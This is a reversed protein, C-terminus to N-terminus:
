VRGDHGLDTARGEVAVVLHFGGTGLGLVAATTNLVVADDVRIPGTLQPYAIAAAREGDVQVELEVAGPRELVM